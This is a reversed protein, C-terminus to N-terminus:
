KSIFKLVPNETYTAVGEAKEKAKLQKVKDEALTVSESFEWSRRKEMVFDGFETEVKDAQEALMAGVIEPRIEDARMELEEIQKKIAAYEQLKAKNM